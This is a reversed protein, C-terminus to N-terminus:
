TAAKLQHTLQPVFLAPGAQGREGHPREDELLCSQAEERVIEPCRELLAIGLCVLM